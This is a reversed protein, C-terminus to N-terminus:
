ETGSLAESYEARDVRKLNQGALPAVLDILSRPRSDVVTGTARDIRGKPPLDSRGGRIVRDALGTWGDLKLAEIPGPKFGLTKSQTIRRDLPDLWKILEDAQRQGPIMDLAQMTVYASAPVGTGFPDTLLQAPRGSDNSTERVVKEALKVGVGLSFQSSLLETTSRMGTAVGHGLGAKVADRIASRSILATQFLPLGKVYLWFDEEGTDVGIGRLLYSFNLRNATVLERPLNKRKWTGDVDLVLVSSTGVLRDEEGPDGGAAGVAVAGLGVVIPLTWWSVTDAIAAHREAPRMTKWEPLARFLRTAQDMERSLTLYTYRWFPMVLNSLPNRGLRDLRDPVDDYNLLWRNASDILRLRVVEPPNAVYREVFERAQKGKLGARHAEDEAKAKLLSWAWQQKAMADIRDYQLARLLTPGLESAVHGVAALRRGMRALTVADDAPGDTRARVDRWPGAAFVEDPFVDDVVQRFLRNDNLNLLQRMGPVVNVVANRMLALSERMALRDGGRVAALVAQRYAAVMSLLPNTIFNQFFTRPMLLLWARYQRSWWQGGQETAAALAAGPGSEMARNYADELSPWVGSLAKVTRGIMGVQQVAAIQRVLADVVPRPMMKPEGRLRLVEGFFKQFEPSDPGGLRDTVQPFNLPDDFGRVRKFAEWLDAMAKDVVVWGAPVNALDANPVEVAAGLLAQMWEKRATEQLVQFARTNFGTILDQVNGMERAAGTDYKRGPSVTGQRPNLRKERLYRLATGVMGQSMAVDPTYAERAVFNPDAEAYKSALSWRNFIPVEIGAITQRMGKGAPDVWLDFFWKLEPFREVAWGYVQEQREASMPRLLQFGVRGDDLTVKPGLTLAEMSGDVGIHGVTDGETLGDRSAIREPMFGARMQFDEFTWGDASRGGTVNLHAAVPLALRMFDRLRDRRSLYGRRFWAPWPSDKAAPDLSEWVRRIMDESQRRVAAQQYSTTLDLRQKSRLLNAGGFKRLAESPRRLGARDLFGEVKEPDYVPVGAGEQNAISESLEAHRLIRNIDAQVEGTVGREAQSEANRAMTWAAPLWGKIADGFRDTLIKSAESFMRVGRQMLGRVVDVVRHFARIWAPPRPNGDADFYPNGDGKPPENELDEPKLSFMLDERAALEEVVAKRNATDTYTQVRIGAGELIQRVDEATGEPVAAARFENLGVGRQPKAEFYETPANAVKEAFAQVAAVAEPTVGKFSAASLLAGTSRPRKTAKGVVESLRDLRDWASSYTDFPAVLEAIQGFEKQQADKFARMGAEDTLSGKWSRVSDLSGAEVAANSRAKGLSYTMGDEKARPDGSMEAVLSDLTYPEKRRGSVLMQNPDFLDQVLDDVWRNFEAKLPAIREDMWNSIAFRDPQQKNEELRFLDDVISDVMQFPLPTGRAGLAEEMKGILKAGAESGVAKYRNLSLERVVDSFAIGEPTRSWDYLRNRQEIAPRLRPDNLFEPDILRNRFIPGQMIRPVEIGKETLFAARVDASGLFKRTTERVNDPGKEVILDYAREGPAIEGWGTFGKPILKALRKTVRDRAGRKMAQFPRPQRPSYVDADFVRNRRDAQPDVASKDAILTIPGFGTFPTTAKTIGLSPVPIGGLKAAARIGEDSTNHLAVLERDVVYAPAVPEQVTMSREELVPRRFINGNEVTGGDRDLVIRWQGSLAVERWDVRTSGHPLILDAFIAGHDSGAQQVQKRLDWAPITVPFQIMARAAHRTDSLLVTFLNEAKSMLTAIKALRKVDEEPSVATRDAGDVEFPFAASRPLLWPDPQDTMGAVQGPVSDGQGNIITYRGHDTVVHGIFMPANRGERRRLALRGAMAATVKRDANSPVPEGSPHNHSMAVADADVMEGEAVVRDVIDEDSLSNNGDFWLYTLDPLRSSVSVVRVVKGDKIFYWRLSEFRPDRFMQALVAVDQITRARMGRVDVPGRKLLSEAVRSALQLYNRGPVPVGVTGGRDADRQADVRDPERRPLTGGQGGADARRPNARRRQPGDFPLELQDDRLVNRESGPRRGARIAARLLERVDAEEVRRTWGRDALWRQVWAKLDRWARVVANESERAQDAAVVRRMVAEELAVDDGYGLAQMGAKEESTVASVLARLLRRGQPTRVVMHGMEEILVSRVEARSGLMTHFLAITGDSRLVGRAKAVKPHAPEIAVRLGPALRRVVDAVDAANLGAVPDTPAVSFPEDTTPVQDAKEFTGRDPFFVDGPYLTQRGWFGRGQDKALGQVEAVDVSGDENVREVELTRGLVDFRDGQALADASMRSANDRTPGRGKRSSVVDNWYAAMEEPQLEVRTGMRAEDALAEVLDEPTKIGPFGAEPLEGLLQDIGSGTGDRRIAKGLKMRQQPTLGSEQTLLQRLDDYEGRGWMNEPIKIGGLAAVMQLLGGADEDVAAQVSYDRMERPPRDYRAEIVAAERGAQLNADLDGPAAQAPLDGQADAGAAPASAAAAKAAKPMVMVSRVPVDAGRILRLREIAEEKSVGDVELVGPKDGDAGFEIRVTQDLAEAEPAAAAKAPKVAPVKGAPAAPAPLVAPRSRRSVNGPAGLLGEVFAGALGERGAGATLKEPDLTEDVIANQAVRQSAEEAFGSVVDKAIEKSVGLATLKEAAKGADTFYRRLLRGAGLKNEILTAVTAYGLAKALAKDPDDGREKARGLADELEAGFGTATGTAVATASASQLIQGAGAKALGGRILASTGGTALIGGVSGLASPVDSRWFSESLRTDPAPLIRDAVEEIAKGIRPTLYGEPRRGSGIGVRELGVDTAEALRGPLSVLGAVSGVAARGFSGAMSRVSDVVGVETEAPAATVTEAPAAAAADGGGSDFEARFEPDRELYVPFRRGLMQVLQADPVEGYQPYKQRVASLTPSAM